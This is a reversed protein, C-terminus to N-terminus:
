SRIKFKVAVLKRSFAKANEVDGGNPRGKNIGGIFRFISRADFGRCSFEDIYQIM